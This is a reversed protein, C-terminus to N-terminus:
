NYVPLLGDGFGNERRRARWCALALAIALDDHEGAGDAGYRLPGSERRKMRMATLERMLWGLDRLGPAIRLLKQELLVQLGAILDQKPVSSGGSRVNERAGGTITVASIECGLQARRLMDVVPAGVGTADVVLACDGRLPAGLVIRQVGEVLKPYPVGLPVREVYRLLFWERYREVIAIASHDYKQGLDLGVYFM